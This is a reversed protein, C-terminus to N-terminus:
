LWGSAVKGSNKSFRFVGECFAVPDIAGERQCRGLAEIIEGDSHSKRWKGLIGRAASDSKGGAKLMDLGMSFVVKSPDAPLGAGVPINNGQEKIRQDHTPRANGGANPKEAPTQYKAWNCLTVLRRGHVVEANIMRDTVLRSIFTRVVQYGVGVERAIRRESASVAGRPVTVTHGNIDHQTDKWCANDLLWLWIALRDARGIFLPHTTIGRKVSFWGSM